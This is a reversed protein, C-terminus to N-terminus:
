AYISVQEMKRALNHIADEIKKAQEASPYKVGTAYQRMLSENIGARKAVSTIKLFDFEEFFAQLDYHIDFEISNMNIKGWFSDTKGEHKIYDEISDKINKLLGELTEGQGTPMFGKDEIRGWFHGDNREVIVDLKTKRNNKSNM